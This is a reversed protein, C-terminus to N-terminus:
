RILDGYQADDLSSSLGKPTRGTLAVFEKILHSQDAYGMEAARNAWNMDYEEIMRIATSRFRFVRSYQKPTFGVEKRFRRELQRKSIGVADSISQIRESGFSRIIIGVAHAVADDVQEPAIRLSTLFHAFVGSAAEFTTSKALEFKLERFKEEFSSSELIPMTEIGKPDTQFILRNAAPAMRIGWHLDGPVVATQFPELSLGRILLPGGVGAAESRKHLVSIFGDPIVAHQIRGRSTGIIEFEFFCFALHSTEDPPRIESYRYVTNVLDSM